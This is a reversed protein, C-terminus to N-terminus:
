SPRKCRPPAREIAGSIDGPSQLWHILADNLSGHACQKAVGADRWANVPHPILHDPRCDPRTNDKPQLSTLFGYYQDDRIVQMPTAPVYHGQQDSATV